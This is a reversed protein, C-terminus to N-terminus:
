ARWVPPGIRSQVADSKLFDVFSDRGGPADDWFGSPKRYRLKYFDWQADHVIQHGPAHFLELVDLLGEIGVFSDVRALEQWGFLHADCEHFRAPM